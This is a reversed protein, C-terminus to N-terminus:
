RIFYNPDSYGVESCIEKMTKDPSKLMEKAREIRIRTLYESAVPYISSFM